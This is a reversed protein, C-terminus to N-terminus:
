PIHLSVGILHAEAVTFRLFARLCIQYAKRAEKPANAPAGQSLFQPRKGWESVSFAM